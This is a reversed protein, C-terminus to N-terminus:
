RVGGKVAAGRARISDLRGRVSGQRASAAEAEAFAAVDPRADWLEARDGGSGSRVVRGSKEPAVEVFAPEPHEADFRSLLQRFGSAISQQDADQTRMLISAVDEPSNVECLTTLSGGARARSGLSLRGGIGDGGAGSQALLLIRTDLRLLILSQGRGLPYRGLIELLGAPSKGGSVGGIASALDPNARALRKTLRAAGFILALVLTLSGGTRILSNSFISSSDSTERSQARTTSPAATPHGLPRLEIEAAAAAPSASTTHQAAVRPTILVIAVLAVMAQIMHPWAVIKVTLQHAM